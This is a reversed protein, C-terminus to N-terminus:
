GKGAGLLGVAWRAVMERLAVEEESEGLPLPSTGGYQAPLEEPAIYKLLDQAPNASLEIRDQLSAPLVSALIRWLGGVFFPVNVVCIRTVREPYHNSLIDGTTRLCDLVDKTLTTIGVGSIDLVTMARGEDGQSLCKYLYENFYMYHYGIDKQGIGMAKLKHIALQGPFEYIVIEGTRSRGHVWHPYHKKCATFNPHPREHITDVGERARWALHDRYKARAKEMNGGCAKLFTAPPDPPYSSSSPFAMEEQHRTREMQRMDISVSSSLSSSLGPTKTAHSRRNSSPSSSVAADEHSARSSMSTTTTTTSGVAESHYKRGGVSALEKNMRRLVLCGLLFVCVAILVSPLLAPRGHLVAYTRSPFALGGVLGGVVMGIAVMPNILPGEEGLSVVAGRAAGGGGAAPWIRNNSWRGASLGMSGAAASSSGAAARRIRQSNEWLFSSLFGTTFRVMILYELRTVLGTAVVALLLGALCGFQLRRARRKPPRNMYWHWSTPRRRMWCATRQGGIFALLVLAWWWATDSARYFGINLRRDLFLPGFPMIFYCLLANGLDALAVTQNTITGGLSSSTSSRTHRPAM